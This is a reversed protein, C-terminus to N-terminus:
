STGEEMGGVRRRERGKVRDKALVVVVVMVWGVGVGAGDVATFLRLSEGKEM